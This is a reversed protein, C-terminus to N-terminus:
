AAIRDENLAEDIEQKSLVIGLENKIITLCESKGKNTLVREKINKILLQKNIMKPNKGKVFSELLQRWGWAEIEMAIDLELIDLADYDEYDEGENIYHELM